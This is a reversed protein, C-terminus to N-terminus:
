RVACRTSRVLNDRRLYTRIEDSLSPRRPPNLIVRILQSVSTVDSDRPSRSVTRVREHRSRTAPFHSAATPPPRHHLLVPGDHPYAAGVLSTCPRPSGAPYAWTFRSTCLYKKKNNMSIGKKKKKKKKKKKLNEGRM